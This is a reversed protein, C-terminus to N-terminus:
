NAQAAFKRAANTIFRDRRTADLSQKTAARQGNVFANLM